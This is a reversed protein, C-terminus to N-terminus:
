LLFAAIGLLGALSAGSLALARNASNTVLPPTTTSNNGSPIGDGASGPPITCNNCSVSPVAYVPRRVECPCNTITITENEACPYKVGKYDIVTATPCVTPFSDVVDVIWDIPDTTATSNQASVAVAVASASVLAIRTTISM